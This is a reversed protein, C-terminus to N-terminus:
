PPSNDFAPGIAALSAVTRLYALHAALGDESLPGGSGLYRFDDEIFGIRLFEADILPLYRALLAQDYTM